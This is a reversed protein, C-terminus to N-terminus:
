DRGAASSLRERFLATRREVQAAAVNYNHKQCCLNLVNERPGFDSKKLRLVLFITIQNESLNRRRYKIDDTISHDETFSTTFHLATRSPFLIWIYPRFLFTVWHM